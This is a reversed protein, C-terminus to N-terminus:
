SDRRLAAFAGPMGIGGDVFVLRDPDAYPLPRLLIGEVRSFIATNAGIALALTIAAALTFSPARRLARLAYRVDRMLADLSRLAWVDRAAERVRLAGGLARKARDAAASQPVGEHELAQRRQEVHFRLEEDLEREFRRRNLLARLRRIWQSM